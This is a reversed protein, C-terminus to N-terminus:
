AIFPVPQTDKESTRWSVLAIGRVGLAVIAQALVYTIKFGLEDHGRGQATCHHGSSYCALLVISINPNHDM